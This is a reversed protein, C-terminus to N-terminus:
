KTQETRNFGIVNRWENDIGIKAFYRSLANMNSVWSEHAIRRNEDAKGKTINDVEKDMRALTLSDITSIYRLLSKIFDVFLDKSIKDKESMKKIDSLMLFNKNLKEISVDENETDHHTNLKEEGDVFDTGKEYNDLHSWSKLFDSDLPM